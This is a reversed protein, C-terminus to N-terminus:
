AAPAAPPPHPGPHAAAAPTLACVPHDARGGGWPVGAGGQGLSVPRPGEGAATRRKKWSEAVLKASGAKCQWSGVELKHLNLLQPAKGQMLKSVLMCLIIGTKERCPQKVLYGRLFDELGM